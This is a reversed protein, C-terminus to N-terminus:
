KTVRTLAAAYEPGQRDMWIKMDDGAIEGTFAEAQDGLAAKFTFRNKSVKGDTITIAEGNRTLTGTLATESAKLDLVVATGNRTEGQWKGTLGAQSEVIAALVLFTVGLLINKM